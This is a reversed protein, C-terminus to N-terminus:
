IFYHCSLYAIHKFNSTKQKLKMAYKSRFTFWGGKGNNYLIVATVTKVERMVQTTPRALKSSHLCRVQHPATGCLAALWFQAKRSVMFTHVFSLCTKNLSREGGGM